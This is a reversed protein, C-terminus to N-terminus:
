LSGSPEGLRPCLSSSDRGFGNAILKANLAPLQARRDVLDLRRVVKTGRIPYEYVIITRDRVFFALRKAVDVVLDSWKSLMLANTVSRNAPSRKSGSWTECSNCIWGVLIVLFFM